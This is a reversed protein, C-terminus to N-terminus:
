KMQTQQYSLCSLVGYNGLIKVIVIHMILKIWSVGFNCGAKPRNEYIKLVFNKTRVKIDGGYIVLNDRKFILIKTRENYILFM